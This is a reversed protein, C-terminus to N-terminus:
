NLSFGKPVKKLLFDDFSSYGDFYVEVFEILGSQRKIKIEWKDLMRNPESPDSFSGKRVKDVILDAPSSCKLTRLYDYQSPVSTLRIPDTMAFGYNSKSSEITTPVDAKNNKHSLFEDDDNIELLGIPQDSEIEEILESRSQVSINVKKNHSNREDKVAALSQAKKNALCPQPIHSTM